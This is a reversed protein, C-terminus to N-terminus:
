WTALSASSTATGMATTSAWNRQMAMTRLLILLSQGIFLFEVEAFCIFNPEPSGHGADCLMMDDPCAGNCPVSQAKLSVNVTSVLQLNLNLNVNVTSIRRQIEHIKIKIWMQM